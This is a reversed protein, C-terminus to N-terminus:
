GPAAIGNFNPNAASTTLGTGIPGRADFLTASGVAIGEASYHTLAALGIYPGEPLRCLALTYDANIFGLGSPTFNTMSATVDVALAARVFPSMEEGAVLPRIERLWAYRPGDYQWPFGGGAPEKGYATIFMPVAPNFREPEAPMPPMSLPTTWADDSPQTSPRLHLTSARAVVEGHQTMTASLARMRKGVRVVEASVQVPETAVRRLIDVTLRVPILEPDDIRAEVARALLGGVVQGGLTPGWGGQAIEGPVLADGVRTFFPAHEADAPADPTDAQAEM